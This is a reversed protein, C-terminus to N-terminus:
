NVSIKLTLTIGGRPDTDTITLNCDGAAGPATWRFGFADGYEDTEQTGGTVVGASATLVLTHDALPNGWRDKISASISVTEATAANTPGDVSSKGAYANGTTLAVTYSSSATSNYFTVVDNAGIGDDNGTGLNRSGDYDLTTSKVTLRASSGFCGDSLAGDSVTLYSAASKFATNNTVFNGNLDLGVLTVVAQAVGDAQITAPMGTATLTTTWGSNIFWSSDAVTGGATEARIIVIGDATPVQTGSLWKSTAVGEHEITREEYAKMTGEDCSFYVVTSDVVPNLYLDSVIATILNEGNVVNWYPVNCKESGIVIYQPPGSAVLVQTANSLVTDIYARIRITGSVTGSHVPATAVGQSNTVAAYPGYGVNSLHEGGGPGDLIVFSITLGEPVRNGNIDYGVARILGTEIGGTGKVRLSLSDSSLYISSVSANPTLQVSAEGFGVIGNSNVTARIYVTFADPASIYKVTARGQGGIVMASSPVLGLADWSGNGNADFELSDIGPSWYGNADNDIFKEGAAIKVVTSDPALQGLADRVTISVTATDTGNALLLSPSIAVAVNGSSSGGAGAVSLAAQDSLASGTLSATVTVAGATTATFITAAAGTADTTDVAPTFYGSNSPSAVFTVSRNALPTTGDMVIAEVVATGGTNISTPSATVNITTGSPTTNNKNSGGCGALALVLVAALAFAWLYPKNQTRM